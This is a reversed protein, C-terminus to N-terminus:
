TRHSSNLRTSKRDLGVETKKIGAIGAVNGFMAEIGRIGGSGAGGWGSSRAWPNILLESAGAQGARDPNGAFSINSSSILIGSVVCAFAIRYIQKM